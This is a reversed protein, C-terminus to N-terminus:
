GGGGGGGGRWRRTGGGGSRAAGGRRLGAIKRDSSRARAQRQRRVTPRRRASNAAIKRAKALQQRQIGEDEGRARALKAKAEALAPRRPVSTPRPTRPRGDCSTPAIARPPPSPACRTSARRTRGRDGPGAAADQDGYALYASADTLVDTFSDATSSRSWCAPTRPATRTRWGRARAGRAARGAGRRGARDGAGARRADRGAPQLQEQLGRSAGPGQCRRRDGADIEQRVQAQDANIGDLPRRDQDARQARRGRRGPPRRAPPEAADIDRQLAAQRARAAAISTPSHAADVPSSRRRCALCRCPSSSWSGSRPPRRSSAAATAAGRVRRVLERDCWECAAGEIQSAGGRSQPVAAPITRTRRLM